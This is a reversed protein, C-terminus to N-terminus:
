FCRYKQRSNILEKIMDSIAYFDDQLVEADMMRKLTTTNLISNLQRSQLNSMVDIHGDEKSNALINKDLLWDQTEFVNKHLWKLSEKQKNKSVPIYINGEQNPKKNFEYVGGINGAVHGAYRSWVSLLEGYLESM